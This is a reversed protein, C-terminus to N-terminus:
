GELVYSAFTTKVGYRNPKTVYETRISYGASRLEFIRAGLRRIALEEFAQVDTIKGNRKLYSLVMENQTIKKAM